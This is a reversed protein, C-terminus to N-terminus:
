WSHLRSSKSSSQKQTQRGSFFSPQKEAFAPFNEFKLSPDNLIDLITELILVWKLDSTAYLLTSTWNQFKMKNIDAM